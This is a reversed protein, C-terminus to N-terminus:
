FLFFDDFGVNDIRGGIECGFIVFFCVGKEGEGRGGEWGEWSM